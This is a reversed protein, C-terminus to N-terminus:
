VRVKTRLNEPWSDEKGWGCDCGEPSHGWIREALELRTVHNSYAQDVLMQFCQQRERGRPSKFAGDHM